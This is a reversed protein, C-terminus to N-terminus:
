KNSGVGDRSTPLAVAIEPMSLMAARGAGPLVARHRRHRFASTQRLLSRSTAECVSSHSAAACFVVSPRVAAAWRMPGALGLISYFSLCYLKLLTIATWVLRKEM